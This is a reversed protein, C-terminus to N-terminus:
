AIDNRKVETLLRRSEPSGVCGERQDIIPVSKSTNHLEVRVSTNTLGSCFIGEEEEEGCM